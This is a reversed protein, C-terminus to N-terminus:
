GVQFYLLDTLLRLREACSIAFSQKGAKAQVDRDNRDSLALELPEKFPFLETGTARTAVDLPQLAVGEDYIELIRVSKSFIGSVKTVYYRSRLKGYSEM